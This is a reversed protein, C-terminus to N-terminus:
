HRRGRGDAPGAPGPQRPRPKQWYVGPRAPALRLQSRQPQTQRLVMCLARQLKADRLFEERTVGRAYDQAERCVLLMDALRAEDRWM